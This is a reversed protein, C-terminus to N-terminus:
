KCVGLNQSEYDLSHHHLVVTLERETQVDKGNSNLYHRLRSCKELSTLSSDGTVKVPM